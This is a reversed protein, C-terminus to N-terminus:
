KIILRAHLQGQAHIQEIIAIREDPPVNLQDFAALLEQLRTGRPSAPDETSLGLWSTQRVMPDAPTPVPPPMTSVISIGNSSVAVPSVRVDGTFSITGRRVDCIVQAPLRLLEVAIPTSMIGAIFPAPDAQEGQPIDVAITRDDLAKAIRMGEAAPTAFYEDNIATAIQSTSGFGRYQGEVVLTFHAKPTPPVLARAIKAGGSVRATTPTGPDLVAIPGDAWAFVPSGQLPGQMPTMFLQGGLLSQATGLTSVTVDLSDNIQAGGRPIECTVMVLAVSRTKALEELDPVPAGSATLVAALTRAMVPEKGSDGTGPLGIVLGMGRLSYRSDTSLRALEQVAVTQARLAGPWCATLLVALALLTRSRTM